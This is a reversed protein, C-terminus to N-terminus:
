IIRCDWDTNGLRSYYVFEKLLFTKDFEQNHGSDYLSTWMGIVNKFTAHTFGYHSSMKQVQYPLSVYM